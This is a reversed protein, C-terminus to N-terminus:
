VNGVMATGVIGVVLVRAGVELGVSLGVMWSFCFSM